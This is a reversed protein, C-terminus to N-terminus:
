HWLKLIDYVTKLAVVVGSTIRAIGNAKFAHANKDAYQQITNAVRRVFPKKL